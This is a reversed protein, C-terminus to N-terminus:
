EQCPVHIRRFLVGFRSSQDRESFHGIVGESENSEVQAMCDREDELDKGLLNEGEMVAECVARNWSRADNHDNAAGETAQM